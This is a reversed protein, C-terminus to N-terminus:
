KNSSYEVGKLQILMYSAEYNLNNTWDKRDTSELQDAIGQNRYSLFDPHRIKSDLMQEADSWRKESILPLTAQWAGNTITNMLRVTVRMANAIAMPDGPSPVSERGNEELAWPMFLAALLLAIVLSVTIAGDSGCDCRLTVVLAILWTVFILSGVIEVIPSGDSPWHGIIFFVFFPLVIFLVSLKITLYIFSIRRHKRFIGAVIAAPALLLFLYPLAALALALAAFVAAIAIWGPTLAAAFQAGITNRELKKGNEM